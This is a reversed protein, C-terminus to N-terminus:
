HSGYQFACRNFMVTVSSIDIPCLQELCTYVKYLKNIKMRGEVLGGIYVRFQLNWFALLKKQKKKKWQNIKIWYRSYDM